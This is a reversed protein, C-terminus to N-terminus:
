EKNEPTLYEASVDINIKIKNNITEEKKIIKLNHITQWIRFEQCSPSSRSTVQLGVEKTEGDKTKFSTTEYQWNALLGKQSKM